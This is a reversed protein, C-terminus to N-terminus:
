GACTFRRTWGCRRSSACASSGPWRVGCSFGMSWPSRCVAPAGVGGDGLGAPQAAREALGGSAVVLAAFAPGIFFVAVSKIYIALGALLGAAAAWGWRRSAEWRLAAWLAAAILAVMLPEPQFARSAVVGYPWALFFAAAVLAGWAGIWEFALLAIFVAGAMWFAIAYLRPISLDPGGALGYTWAVLREFVQPEIEGEIHWQKVALDRQWAPVDPRQEFYMGRAILASHLQRTPHFDLPPDSLDYLRVGLGIAFIGVMLVWFLSRNM